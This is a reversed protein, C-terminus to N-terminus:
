SIKERAQFTYVTITHGRLSPIKMNQKLRTKSYKTSKLSFHEITKMEVNWVCRACHNACQWGSIFIQQIINSFSLADMKISHENFLM